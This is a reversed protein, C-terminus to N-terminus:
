RGGRSGSLQGSRAANSQTGGAAERSQARDEGAQAWDEGQRTEEQDDEESEEGDCGTEGCTCRRPERRGPVDRRAPAGYIAPAPTVAPKCAEGACPPPQASSFGGGERADYMDLRKM